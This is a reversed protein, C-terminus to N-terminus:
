PHPIRAILHPSSKAIPPVLARQVVCVPPDNEVGHADQMRQASALGRREDPDPLRGAGAFRSM